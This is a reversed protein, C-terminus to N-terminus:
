ERYPMDSPRQVVWKDFEDKDAESAFGLEVM